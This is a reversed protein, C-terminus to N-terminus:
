LFVDEMLFYDINPNLTISLIDLQIRDWEPNELLYREAGNIVFQLKSKTVAEEPYGHINNTKTKVEIFHLIGMRKAIIDIEWNGSRWNKDLIKYGKKVFFAVALREGMQGIKNHKAM